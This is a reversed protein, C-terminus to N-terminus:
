EDGGKRPTLLRTLTTERRRLSRMNAIFEEARRIRKRLRFLIAYANSESMGLAKAAKLVSGHRPIEELLERERETLTYSM